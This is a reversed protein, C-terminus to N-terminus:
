RDRYLQQLQRLLEGAADGQAGVTATRPEHWDLRIRLYNEPLESLREAWEIAVIAPQEWLEELGLAPVEQPELRYLDIHILPWPGGGYEEILSFTPSTVPEGIGLEHALGQICTTKGSGLDGYFLLVVAPQWCRALRAGLELTAHRDALLIKM